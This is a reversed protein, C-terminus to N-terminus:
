NADGDSFVRKTIKEFQANVLDEALNNNNNYMAARDDDTIAEFVKFAEKSDDYQIKIDIFKSILYRKAIDKNSFGKAKCLDIFKDGRKINYAPVISVNENRGKKHKGSCLMSFAAKDLAKANECYILNLTSFTLGDPNDKTRILSKYKQLLKDDPHVNAAGIIYDSIEWQKKTINIENIYESLSEGGQLEVIVAPVQIQNGSHAENYLAVALTRHQGDVVLYYDMITDNGIPNGNIDVLTIDGKATAKEAEIVQIVEASRYGKREIMAVIKKVNDMNVSRNIGVAFAPKREEEGTTINVPM